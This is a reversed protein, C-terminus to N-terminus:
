LNCDVTKLRFKPSPLLRFRYFTISFLFFYNGITTYVTAAFIIANKFDSMPLSPPHKAYNRHCFDLRNMAEHAAKLCDSHSFTINGCKGQLASLENEMEEQCRANYLEIAHDGAERDLAYFIAGGVVTLFVLGIMYLLHSFGSQRIDEHKKALHLHVRMWSTKRSLRVPEVVHPQQSNEATMTNVDALSENDKQEIIGDVSELGVAASEPASNWKAHNLLPNNSADSSNLSCNADRIEM